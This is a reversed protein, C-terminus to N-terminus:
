YKSITADVGTWGYESYVGGNWRIVFDIHDGEGLYLAETEYEVTEGTDLDDGFVLTNNVAVYIDSSVGRGDGGWFTVALDFFGPEPSTWRVCPLGNSNDKAWMAVGAAISPGGHGRNGLYWGTEGWRVTMLDFSSGEPAWKRAYAWVDNPNNTISYGSSMNWTERYLLEGTTFRWEPGVRVGDKSDRAVVLWFYTTSSSLGRVVLWPDGQNAAVLNRPPSVTDVFVDYTVADGDPDSCSWSLHANRSQDTANNDPSVLVPANPVLNQRLPIDATTTHGASVSVMRSGNSDVKGAVVSYQGPLIHELTYNGDPDSTTSSTPPITYVNAGEVSAGTDRQTIKGVITGTLVPDDRQVPRTVDDECAPLVLCLFVCLTIAQIRM